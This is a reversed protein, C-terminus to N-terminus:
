LRDFLGPSPLEGVSPAAAPGAAALADAAGGVGDGEGDQGILRVVTNEYKGLHTQATDFADQAKKLGKGIEEFRKEFHDFHRRAKKVEEITKEVGKAMTYYEQAMAVSHLSISLTNPSVPFVKLKALAEFLDGDRIVEFYITESPLFMLAMDSTGCDPRIYKKAISRAQERIVVSLQKRAAELASPDSSEFLPLIQERPFKSDIPLVQSAMRVIADVKEASGPEIAYQLEYASQPLFDALLRDLTAEGFGGRLHPLKLLGNLESISQGVVALSALKLEAAQLHQQVKEFHAFGEKLNQNLKEEVNKGITELRLGVQKELSQFKIELAETTRVLGTQLEQRNTGLVRDLREQTELFSKSLKEQISERMEMGNRTVRETLRETLDLMPRQLEKQLLETLLKPLNSKLSFLFVGLGVVLVLIVALFGLFELTM